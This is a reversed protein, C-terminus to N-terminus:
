RRKRHTTTNCTFGGFEFLVSGRRHFRTRAALQIAVVRCRFFRRHVLAHRGLRRELSKARLPAHLPLGPFEPPGSFGEDERAPAAPERLAFSPSPEVVLRHHIVFPLQQQPPHRLQTLSAFSPLTVAAGCGVCPASRCTDIYSLIFAISM